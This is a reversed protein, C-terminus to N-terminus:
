QMEISKLLSIALIGPNEVEFGDKIKQRIRLLIGTADINHGATLDLFTTQEKGNNDLFRVWYALSIKRMYFNKHADLNGRNPGSLIYKNNHYSFIYFPGLPKYVPVLCHEPM